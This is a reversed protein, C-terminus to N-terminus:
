SEYQAVAPITKIVSDPNLSISDIGEKILFQVFDPYDSPAQGCIGIYKNRKKCVKIVKAILEKVAPDNENSIGRIKENGDRDLGLTLQTLDNSGISMGDFIDLFKDALIVNDPIECMVFVKLQSIKKKSLGNEKMIKLVKKGEDVTRCFPVMVAVNILGMEQIVKKIAEIELIFAPAFDPHHYRSAGRFGIMPNEENPEYLDGGLLAKYENSKFDSFRVIVQNPYFSAAIRAIGYALKDTYFKKKDAYGISKEDIKKKLDEPINPYNVLAMPHIGIDSAIIFEERALGVGDVPLFSKEFATQPTAINVLIHTKTKPLNKLNHEIVKFKIKGAFILGDEGSCDVTVEMGTKIESTANGCGVVAPIGLERSVIAAHSTRGGKDTVIASAIKMIPEWDPDTMETVLVEGAKFLKIDAPSLIVRSKGTAIKNGVSAGKTIIKGEEERQYEKYISLDKLANVTEPRAQIIYLEGTRGDKAWELDMPTWKGKRQSYHKEILVAWKALKLVETDSLVFTSKEKQSTPIIQVPEHIGYIMKKDKLGLKKDIIPTFRKKLFPLKGKQKGLTDKFVFFEDPTVEGQVIMEGLGWSGNILVVKPFGTETDLTFMVGSCALDSRIMKQIGVSLYVKLHDFNKDVRYSIARDTFLSAMCKKVADLINASGVINLFTEHEGAFSAQPLDEATASSRVAFDAGKGYKKEANKHASIIAEELDKPFPTKIIQERITRGKAQLQSLNNINLDKLTEEIFKDLGTSQLFYRYASATVAFGGPIQVGLKSLQSIMEGLSANKGGVEGVDEITLKEFPIIFNTRM